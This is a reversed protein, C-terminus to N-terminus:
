VREWRSAFLRAMVIFVFASVVLVAVEVQLAAVGMDRWFVKNYGDLAWANFTLLGFNQMSESMLYRPVMSGGLASMSLIVVISVWNLQTRSKCATALMLAFSSAAAVTTITMAVFGDLHGVLDVGFAIQAWVFMVVMQCTGIIVMYCWKGMLLQDLTLRSSLLRELTSNEREELLTGSASTSSFLLFMVAIGAAYMVIAPNSQNRGLVDVLEVPPPLSIAASLPMASLMPSAPLMANSLMTTPLMDPPEDPATEPLPGGSGVQSGEAPIIVTASAPRVDDLTSDQPRRAALKRQKQGALDAKAKMVSKQLMATVVQSAIQDYSDNLLEIRMADSDDQKSFVIGASVTGKRVLEEAVRRNRVLINVAAAQTKSKSENESEDGPKPNAAQAAEPEHFRFTNQEQLIRITEASLPSQMEDSITVRIKPTSGGSGRSGFIMAFMSFFCIPVVFLLVLEAKNHWLRLLGIQVITRIM